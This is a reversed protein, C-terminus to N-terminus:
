NSVSVGLNLTRGAAGAAASPKEARFFSSSPVSPSNSHFPVNTANGSPRTGDTRLRV